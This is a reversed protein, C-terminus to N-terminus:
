VIPSIHPPGNTRSFYLSVQLANAILKKLRVIYSGKRFVLIPIEGSQILVAATVRRQELRRKHRRWCKQIILVSKTLCRNRVQELREM